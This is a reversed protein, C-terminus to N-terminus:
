MGTASLFVIQKFLDNCASRLIYIRIIYWFNLLRWTSAMVQHFRGAKRSFSAITPSPAMREPFVRHIVTPNKSQDICVKEPSVKPM